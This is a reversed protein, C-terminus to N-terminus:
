SSVQGSPRFVAVWSATNVAGCFATSEVGYVLRRDGGWQGRWSLDHLDTFEHYQYRGRVEKWILGGPGFLPAYMEYDRAVGDYSHDADIFLLDIKGHASYRRYSRSALRTM